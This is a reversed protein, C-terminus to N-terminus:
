IGDHGRLLSIESPQVMWNLVDGEFLNLSDFTITPVLATVTAEQYNLVVECLIIGKSIAYIKGQLINATTPAFVKSLIVETEKFALTVSTHLLDQANSTEALLLHFSDGGVAVTICSLHDSTTIGTITASLTNM